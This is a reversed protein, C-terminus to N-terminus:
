DNLKLMAHRPGNHASLHSKRLRQTEPAALDAPQPRLPEQARELSVSFTRLQKQRHAAAFGRGEEHAAALTHHLNLNLRGLRGELAAGQQVAFEHNRAM